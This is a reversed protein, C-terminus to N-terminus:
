RLGTHGFGGEGRESPPLEAVERPRVRAVPAIVLQAFRMGREIRVPEEGLNVVIVKLEGRFPSDITGPANPVALGHRLALGSRMRVQGEYGDPIALAFGTAVAARAGPQIELDEAAHLDLGSDGRHAYAPLPLDNGPLRRFPLEFGREGRPQLDAAATGGSLEPM